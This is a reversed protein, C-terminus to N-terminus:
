YLAWENVDAGQARSLRINDIYLPVGDVGGGNTNLNIGVTAGPTNYMPEIYDERLTQQLFGETGPVPGYQLVFTHWQQTAVAAYSGNILTFGSTEPNGEDDLIINGQEDIETYNLGLGFNGWGGGATGDMYLDFYLRDYQAFQPVNTLDLWFRTNGADSLDVALYGQGESPPVDGDIVLRDNFNENLTVNELDAESNFGNVLIFEREGADQRVRAVIDDFYILGSFGAPFGGMASPNIFTGWGSVATFAAATEEPYWWTLRKWTDIDDETYGRYGLNAGAFELNIQFPATANVWMGIEDTGSLDLTGVEAPFSWNGFIWESTGGGIDLLLSSEGSHIPEGPFTLGSFFDWNAGISPASDGEFDMITIYEDQGYSLSGILAFLGILVNRKMM